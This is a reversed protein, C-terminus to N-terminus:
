LHALADSRWGSRIGSLVPLRITDAASTTGDGFTCSGSAVGVTPVPLLCHRVKALLLLRGLLLRPPLGLLLLPTLRLLLLPALGLLLLPTLRLNLLLLVIGLLLQRLASWLYTARLLREAGYLLLPWHCLNTTRSARLKVQPLIVHGWDM